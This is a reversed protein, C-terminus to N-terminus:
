DTDEDDSFTVDPNYVIEENNNTTSYTVESSDDGGCIWDVQMPVVECIIDKCTNLPSDSVIERAESEDRARIVLYLERGATTGAMVLKNWFQLEKVYAQHKALIRQLEEHSIGKISYKIIFNQKPAWMRHLHKMFHETSASQSSLQREILLQSARSFLTTVTSKDSLSTEQYSQAGIDAALQEGQKTNIIKETRNEPTDCHTAVLIRIQKPDSKGAFLDVFWRIYLDATNSNSIASYCLLVLEAKTVVVSASAPNDYEIFEIQTRKTIIQNPEITLLIGGHPGKQDLTSGLLHGFQEILTSKGVGKDGLVLCTIISSDSM